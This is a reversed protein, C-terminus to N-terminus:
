LHCPAEKDEERQRLLQARFDELQMRAREVDAVTARHSAMGGVAELLKTRDEAEALLGRARENAAAEPDEQDSGEDMASPGDADEGLWFGTNGTEEITREELEGDLGHEEILESMIRMEVRHQRLLRRKKAYRTCSCVHTECQECVMNPIM